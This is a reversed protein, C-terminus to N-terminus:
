AATLAASQGLGEIGGGSAGAEGDEGDAHDVATAGDRHSPRNQRGVLGLGSAAVPQPQEAHQPRGDGLWARCRPLKNRGCRYRKSAAIEGSAQMWWGSRGLPEYGGQYLRRSNGQM